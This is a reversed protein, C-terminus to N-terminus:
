GIKHKKIAGWIHYIWLAIFGFTFEGKLDPKESIREKCLCGNQIDSFVRYSFLRQCFRNTMNLYFSITMRKGHPLFSCPFFSLIKNYALSLRLSCINWNHKQSMKKKGLSSTFFMDIQKQGVLDRKKMCFEYCSMSM